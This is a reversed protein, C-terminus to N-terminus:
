LPGIRTYFNQKKSHKKLLEKSLERSLKKAMSNSNAMDVVAFGIGIRPCVIQEQSVM